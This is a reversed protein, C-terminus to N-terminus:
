KNIVSRAVLLVLLQSECLVIDNLIKINANVNNNPHLLLIEAIKFLKYLTLIGVSQM